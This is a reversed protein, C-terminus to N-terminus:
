GNLPLKIRITTGCDIGSEVCLEGGLAEVRDRMGALGFAKAGSQQQPVFGCGNDSIAILLQDSPAAINITIASAKAHKAINNLAEQVIRYLQNALLTGVRPPHAPLDLHCAIQYRTAHGDVLMVLAKFLDNEDLHESATDTLLRRVSGVMADVLGDIRDLHQLTDPKRSLVTDALQARLLDLDMKLSTLLQGFDDHIEQTLQKRWATLMDDSTPNSPLENLLITYCRQRGHGTTFITAEFAFLSGNRRRAQQSGQGTLLFIATEDAHLARQEIPRAGKLRHPLLERLPTGLLNDEGTGFLQSAAGNFVIIRQQRDISIIAQRSLQTLTALHLKSQWTEHAAVRDRQRRAERRQLAERTLWCLWGALVLGTLAVGISATASASASGTELTWSQGHLNVPRLTRQASLLAGPSQYLLTTSESTQQDFLRLSVTATRLPELGMIEADLEVITFVFGVLMQRRQQSGEPVMNGPFVPLALLFQRASGARGPLKALTPSASDTAHQLAPALLADAMLDYGARTVPNGDEPSAHLVPLVSEGSRLPYIRYDSQGDAQMAKVLAAKDTTAIHQAYGLQRLGAPLGLRRLHQLYTNWHRNQVIRDLMLMAAASHLLQIHNDLHHQLQTLTRQTQQENALTAIRLEDNRVVVLLLTTAALALVPLLWACQALVDDLLLKLRTRYRRSSFPLDPAASPM